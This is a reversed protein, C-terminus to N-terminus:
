EKRQGRRCRSMIHRPAGVVHSRMYSATRARASGHYTTTIYKDHRSWMTWHNQTLTVHSMYAFESFPIDRDSLQRPTYRLVARSCDTTGVVILCPRVMWRIQRCSAHSQRVWLIASSLLWSTIFINGGCIVPTNSVLIANYALDLTTPAGWCIALHQPFLSFFLPVCSCDVDSCSLYCFPNTSFFVVVQWVPIARLDKVQAQLLPCAFLPRSCVVSISKELQGM